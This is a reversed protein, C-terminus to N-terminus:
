SSVRELTRRSQRGHSINRMHALILKLYDKQYEEKSMQENFFVYQRNRLNASGFCNTCNDCEQLFVSDINSMSNVSGVVNYNRFSNRSDYCNECELIASSDWVNKNRALFFGYASDENQDSYYILYCSKANGCHNTYPSLESTVKDISLGLLPVTHLLDNWLEFFNKNPDYDRAFDAASWKDSWWCRDCYVVYPCGACVYFIENRRM